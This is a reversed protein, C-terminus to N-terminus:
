WTIREYADGESMGLRPLSDTNLYRFHIKGM